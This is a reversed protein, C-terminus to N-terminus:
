LYFTYQAMMSALLLLSYATVGLGVSVGGAAAIDQTAPTTNGDELKRIRAVATRLYLWNAALGFLLRLLLEALSSLLLVWVFLPVSGGGSINQLINSLPITNANTITYLLFSELLTRLMEFILMLAGTLYNKRYLLWYPTLLFAAWNWSCKSGTRSIKQFRPLYYATNAGVFAALQSAPVEEIEEEPSVGGYPDGMTHFPRYEGYPNTYSYPAPGGTPPPPPTQGASHWDDAGTPRGCRSCFEAFSPNECGCHPCRRTDGGSPTHAPQKEATKPPNKDRSWQRDTGHDAEFHCHGERQWCARHHPAGCTPCVVIDDSSVFPKGCVPCSYGEYFFM